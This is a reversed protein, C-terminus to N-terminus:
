NKVTQHQWEEGGQSAFMYPDFIDPIHANLNKIEDESLEHKPEAISYWLTERIQTPLENVNLSTMTVEDKMISRTFVIGANTRDKPDFYWCGINGDVGYEMILYAMFDRIESLDILNTEWAVSVSSYELDDFKQVNENGPIKRYARDRKDIDKFEMEVMITLGNYDTNENKRDESM